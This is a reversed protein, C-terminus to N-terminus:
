EFAFPASVAVFFRYILGRVPVVYLETMLAARVAASVKRTVVLRVLLKRM